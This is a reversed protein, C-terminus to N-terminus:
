VLDGWFTIDDYDNLNPEDSCLQGIIILTFLIIFFLIVKM